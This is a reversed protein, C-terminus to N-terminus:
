PRTKVKHLYALCDSEVYENYSKYNYLHGFVLHCPSDCLTILNDSELELEPNIHVPIKHHVELKKNAGCAACYPHNKLHKKRISSWKPSRTAYRINTFINLINM